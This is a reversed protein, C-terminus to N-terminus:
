PLNVLFPKKKMSFIKKPLTVTADIIFFFYGHMQLVKELAKFLVVCGTRPLNGVFTFNEMVM